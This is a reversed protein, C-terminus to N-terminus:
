LLIERTYVELLRRLLLSIDMLNVNHLLVSLIRVTKSTHVYFSLIIVLNLPKTNLNCMYILRSNVSVTPVYVSVNGSSSLNSYIRFYLIRQM